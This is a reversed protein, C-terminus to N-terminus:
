KTSNNYLDIMEPIGTWVIKGEQVYEDIMQLWEELMNEDVPGGLSWAAYYTNFSSSDTYTLLEDIRDRWADIDNSDFVFGTGGGSLGQIEEYAATLGLGSPIILLEGNDDPYIWDSGSSTRWPVITLKADWPYAAHGEQPSKYPIFGDPRLDKDLSWLAYSVTGTVAEFGNDICVKVWDKDSCVGSVHRVTVDLSELEAKMQSVERMFEELTQTKTGGKDAHLGIGHGRIEMEKLVNDGWQICGATFERSELTMVAGYTEFLSAYERVLEAHKEFREQSRADDWGELHIMVTFYLVGNGDPTNYVTEDDKINDSLFPKDTNLPHNIDNGTISCGTFVLVSALVFIFLIKKM